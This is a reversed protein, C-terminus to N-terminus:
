GNMVETAPKTLSAAFTDLNWCAARHGAGIEVLPPEDEHCRDSAVPCRPAFACGPQLDTLDPPQGEIRYLPEKSGLRPVSRILADAYPHAPQTFIQRVPGHEVARGAYMVIVDDCM